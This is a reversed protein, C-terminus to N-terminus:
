LAHLVAIRTDAVTDYSIVVTGTSSNFRVQSFPGILKEVGAAITVALDHVSAATAEFNCTGPSDFTVVIPGAGANKVYVMERGSNVFSDSAIPTSTTFTAGAGTPRQITLVAM